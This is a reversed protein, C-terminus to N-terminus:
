GRCAASTTPSCSSTPPSWRPEAPSAAWPSASRPPPWPRPTTSATASWAPQDTAPTSSPSRRLRTPPCSGPASSASAWSAPWPPPPGRRQRGDAHHNALGLDHLEALVQAAEPRPRDALRIWGLPGSHATLAVATGVSERPEASSPTSSPLAFVPKTSIAIAEWTISSPTWGAWHVLGPVPRTTTPSRCTWAGAAPTAPSPRAWCTAAAIGSRRPSKCSGRRTRRARPACSRSSTPSARPSRARRTSPWRACGASRRSSVRRRPDVRRRAGGGGPRVGGGGAHRDGACVPLRDGAGGARPRVM